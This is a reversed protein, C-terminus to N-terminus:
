DEAREDPFIEAGSARAMALRTQLLENNVAVESVLRERNLREGQPLVDEDVDFNLALAKLRAHQGTAFLDALATFQDDPLSARRAYIIALLAVEARWMGLGLRKEELSTNPNTLFDLVSETESMAAVAQDITYPADTLVRSAEEAFRLGERFRPHSREAPLVAEYAEGSAVAKHLEEISKASFLKCLRQYHTTFEPTDLLEDILALLDETDTAPEVVHEGVYNVLESSVAYRVGDITQVGRARAVQPRASTPRVFAQCGTPFLSTAWGARAEYRAQAVTM